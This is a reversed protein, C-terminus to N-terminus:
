KLFAIYGGVGIILVGAIRKIWLNATQLRKSSILKQALGLSTGAIIILACHALSYVLLLAGGYIISGKATILTLIVVLIPAACPASVIGLMMGFIFAALYGTAKTKLFKPAPINMEFFGLLHIGMFLCIAAIIYKWFGATDGFMSGVLGAIIGMATFTVVLGLAFFLSILFGNKAVGKGDGSFGATVFGLVLPISAIVCPNAATMLGSLFVAVFGLWPNTQITQAANELFSSFM